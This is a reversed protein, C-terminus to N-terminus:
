KGIILKINPPIDTIPKILFYEIISNEEYDNVNNETIFPSIITKAVLM